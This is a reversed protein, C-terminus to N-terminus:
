IFAIGTFKYIERYNNKKILEFFNDFGFSSLAALSFSTLVIIRSLSSTSIVPIKLSVLINSAPSYVALGLSFIALLVLFLVDKNKKLGSFLVLTLPIIGVFSAWEAYHGFWDNRTVPNGFFDPSFI